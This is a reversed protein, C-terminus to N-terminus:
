RSASGCPNRSRDALMAASARLSSLAARARSAQLKVGTVGIWTTDELGAESFDAEDFVGGDFTAGALDFGAVSVDRFVCGRFVYPREDDADRPLARRLDLGTFDVGVVERRARLLEAAGTLTVATVENETM